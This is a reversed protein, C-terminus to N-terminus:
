LDKEVQGFGHNDRPNAILYFISLTAKLIKLKCATIEVINDMRPMFRQGSRAFIIWNSSSFDVASILNTYIYIKISYCYALLIQKIGSDIFM